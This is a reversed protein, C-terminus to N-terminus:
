GPSRRPAPAGLGRSQAPLSWVRQGNHVFEIGGLQELEEHPLKTLWEAVRPYLAGHIARFDDAVDFPVSVRAARDQGEPNSSIRQKSTADLEFIWREGDTTVIIRLPSSSLTATKSAVRLLAARLAGIEKERNGSVLYEAWWGNGTLRARESGSSSAVVQKVIEDIRDPPLLQPSLVDIYSLVANGGPPVELERAVLKGPSRNTVFDFVDPHTWDVEGSEHEYHTANIGTAGGMSRVRQAVLYMKLSGRSGTRV